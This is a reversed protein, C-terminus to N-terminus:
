KSRLPTSKRYAGLIMTRETRVQTQRGCVRVLDDCSPRVRKPQRGGSVYAILDAVDNWRFEVRFRNATMLIFWGSSVAHEVAADAAQDDAILGTTDLEGVLVGGEAPTFELPSTEAIPRLDLLMGGPVLVRNAERLADVM